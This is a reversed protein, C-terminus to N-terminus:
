ETNSGYKVWPDSLISDNMRKTNDPFLEYVDFVYIDTEKLGYINNQIKPGVHEGRIFWSGELKKAKDYLGLRKVTRWFGSGDYRPLFRTHTCVGFEHKPFIGFLKVRRSVISINQGELKETIYWKSDGYTMKMRSFIAQANTEDSKGPFYPHWIGKSQRLSKKFDRYGRYRMLRRDIFKGIKSKELFNLTGNEIDVGADEPDDIIQKIGLIDTVDTGITPNKEIQPFDSLRYLIGQSYIKLMGFYVQKVKFGRTRLSEFIPISNHTGLEDMKEKVTTREDKSSASKFQKVLVDMETRYEEPLGDPVISDVEIYVVLDGVNFQNKRVVVHYDLVQAMEVNDAGDIPYVNVVKEVHAMSKGFM